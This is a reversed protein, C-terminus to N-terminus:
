LKITSEDERTTSFINIYINFDKQPTTKYENWNFTQSFGFRVNFEGGKMYYASNKQGKMVYEAALIFRKQDLSSDNYNKKDRFHGGFLIEQKEFPLSFYGKLIANLARGSETVAQLHSKSDNNNAILSSTYDSWEFKLEPVIKLFKKIVAVDAKTKAVLHGQLLYRKTDSDLLYDARIKIHNKVINKIKYSSVINARTVFSNKLLLTDNIEANKQLSHFNDTINDNVYSVIIEEELHLDQMLSQASTVGFGFDQHLKKKSSIYEVNRKFWPTISLIDYINIISKLIGGHQGARLFMPWDLHYNDELNDAILNNNFDNLLLPTSFYKDVGWCSFDEDWDPTNNYRDNLGKGYVFDTPEKLQNNEVTAYSSGITTGEAIFNLNDDDIHAFSPTYNKHLYWGNAAFIFDIFSLKFDTTHFSLFEATGYKINKDVVREGSSNTIVFGYSNRYGYGELYIKHDLINLGIDGGWLRNDNTINDNLNLNTLREILTSHSNGVWGHIESFNAWTFGLHEITKSSPIKSQFRFYTGLLDEEDRIYDSNTKNLPDLLNVVEGRQHFRTSLYIQLDFSRNKVLTYKVGFVNPLNIGFPTSLLEIGTGARFETSYNNKSAKMIFHKGIGTARIKTTSITEGLLYYDLDMVDLINASLNKNYSGIFINRGRGLFNGFLDYDPYFIYLDDEGSLKAPASEFLMARGYADTDYSFLSEVHTTLVIVVLVITMAIRLLKYPENTLIKM